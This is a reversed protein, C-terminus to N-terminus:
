CILSHLRQPVSSDILSAMLEPSEIMGSAVWECGANVALFAYADIQFSLEVDVSTKKQETLIHTLCRKTARISYPRLARYDDCFVGANEYFDRAELLASFIKLNADYWSFSDGLRWLGNDLVLAHHWIGIGNKDLFHRYFTQRSVQSLNCISKVTLKAFPISRLLEKTASFIRMEVGYQEKFDLEQM